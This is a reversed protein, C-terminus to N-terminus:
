RGYNEDEELKVALTFDLCWCDEYHDFLFYKIGIHLYVCSFEGLLPHFQTLPPDLHVWDSHPGKQCYVSILYKIWLASLILLDFGGEVALVSGDGEGLYHIGVDM